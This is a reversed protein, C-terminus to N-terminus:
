SRSGPMCASRISATPAPANTSPFWSVLIRSNAPFCPAEAAGLAFRFGLLSGLGTAFGQLLTFTSWLAVSWFYTIRVGFRDLFVGGPIQALAYSWSFVSFLIGMTAAGIGLEGTMSPAAVSLLSRDLYNIMTGIAILALVGYRANSRKAAPASIPTDM